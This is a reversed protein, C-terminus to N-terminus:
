SDRYLNIHLEMLFEGIVLEVQVFEFLHLSAEIEAMDLELILPIEGVSDMIQVDAESVIVFVLEHRAVRVHLTPFVFPERRRM